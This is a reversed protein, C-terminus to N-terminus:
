GRKECKLYDIRIMRYLLCAVIVIDGEFVVAQETQPIFYNLNYFIDDYCSDNVHTYSM